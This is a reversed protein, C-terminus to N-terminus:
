CNMFLKQLMIINERINLVIELILIISNYDLRYNNQLIINNNMKLKKLYIIM